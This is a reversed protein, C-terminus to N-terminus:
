YTTIATKMLSTFVVPLPSPDHPVASLKHARFECLHAYGRSVEWVEKLEWETKYETFYAKYCRRDLYKHLKLPTDYFFFALM